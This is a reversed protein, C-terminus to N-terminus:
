PFVVCDTDHRRLLRLVLDCAAEVIAPPKRAIHFKGDEIEFGDLEGRGARDAVLTLRERLAATRSVIYCAPDTEGDFGIDWGPKPPCYAADAALPGQKRARLNSVRLASV